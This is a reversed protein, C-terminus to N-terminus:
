KKRGCNTHWVALAGEDPYTQLKPFRVSGNQRQDPRQCQSRSCEHAGTISIKEYHITYKTQKSIRHM